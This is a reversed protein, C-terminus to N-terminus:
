TLLKNHFYQYDICATGGKLILQDIHIVFGNNGLAIALTDTDVTQDTVLRSRTDLDLLFQSEGGV